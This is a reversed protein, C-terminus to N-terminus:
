RAPIVRGVGFEAEVWEGNVRVVLRGVPTNGQRGVVRFGVDPGSLVIPAPLPVVERAQAMAMAAVAVATAISIVVVGIRVRISM